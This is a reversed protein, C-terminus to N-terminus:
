VKKVALGDRYYIITLDNLSFEAMDEKRVRLGFDDKERPLRSIGIIHGKRIGPGVTYHFRGEFGATEGLSIPVQFCKLTETQPQDVDMAKVRGRDDPPDPPRPYEFGNNEMRVCNEKNCFGRM